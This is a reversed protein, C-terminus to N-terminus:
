YGTLIFLAIRGCAGAASVNLFADRVSVVM